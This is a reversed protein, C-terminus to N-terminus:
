NNELQKLTMHTLCMKRDGAVPRVKKCEFNTELFKFLKKSDKSKPEIRYSKSLYSNPAEFHVYKSWAEYIQSISVCYRAEKTIDFYTDIFKQFVEEDEQDDAEEEYTKENWNCFKHGCLLQKECMNKFLEFVDANDDALKTMDEDSCLNLANAQILGPYHETMYLKYDVAWQLFDKKEALLLQVMTHKEIATKRTYNKKFVLPMARSKGHESNVFFSNNTAIAVCIGKPSYSFSNQNKRELTLTDGGTLGKFKDAAFLKSVSRCDTLTILKKNFVKQLGFRDEPAFDAPQMQAVYDLGVIDNLIELFTGKGDEGEGGIVMVQRGCYNANLTNDIFHAIKLKDMLPDYFRDNNLFMAWTKPLKPMEERLMPTPYEIHKIALENKDNSFLEIKKVRSIDVSDLLHQSMTKIINQYKWTSGAGYNDLAIEVGDYVWNTKKEGEVGKYRVTLKLMELFTRPVTGDALLMQEPSMDSDSTWTEIITKITKNWQAFKEQYKAMFKPWLQEDADLTNALLERESNLKIRLPILSGDIEFYLNNSSDRRLHDFL